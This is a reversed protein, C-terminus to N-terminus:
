ARMRMLKSAVMAAAVGILLAVLLARPVGPATGFDPPILPRAYGGSSRVLRLSPPVGAHRSYGRALPKACLEIFRQGTDALVVIRHLRDAPQSRPQDQLLRELVLHGLEEPSRAVLAGLLRDRVAVPVLRAPHARRTARDLELARSHTVRRLQAELAAHQAPV